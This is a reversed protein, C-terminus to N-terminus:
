TAVDVRLARPGLLGGKGNGGEGAFHVNKFEEDIM